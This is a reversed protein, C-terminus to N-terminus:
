KGTENGYYYPMSFTVGKRSATGFDFNLDAPLGVLVDVVNNSLYSLAKEYDNFHTLNVAHVDGNYISAALTVCYSVSMGCINKPKMLDNEHCGNQAVVGCNLEDKKSLDHLLSTSVSEPEDEADESSLIGFPTVYLMEPSLFALCIANAICRLLMLFPLEHSYEGTGNNIRNINSRNDSSGFGRAYIEGYNGVCYVAKRYDLKSPITSLRDKECLLANQVLGQREGYFLSQVVWNVIDSWETEDSRTVIALPENTFTNAGVIYNSLNAADMQLSTAQRDGAIVNCTGNRFRQFIENWSYEDSYFDPSFHRSIHEASTSGVACIFLDSCEDYRKQKYACDM